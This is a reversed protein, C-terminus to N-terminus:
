KLTNGETKFTQETLNLYFKFDIGLSLFHIVGNKDFVRQGGRVKGTIWEAM